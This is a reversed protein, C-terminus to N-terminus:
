SKREVEFLGNKIVNCLFKGDRYWDLTYVYMSPPLLVSEEETLLFNITNNTIGTYTKTLIKEGKANKKVTLEVNDSEYLTAGSITIPLTIGYDGETM